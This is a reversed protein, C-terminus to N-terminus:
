TGMVGRACLYIPLEGQTHTGGWAKTWCFRAKSISRGATIRSFTEKQKRKKGLYLTPLTEVLGKGGGQFAIILNKGTREPTDRTEDKELIIPSTTKIIRPSKRGLWERNLAVINM